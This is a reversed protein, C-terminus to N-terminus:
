SRTSADGYTAISALEVQGHEDEVMRSSSGARAASCRRATPRRPTPFGLSIDRVGDGHLNAFDGIEHDRRLSSSLVFRIDGQELVYSARDRM